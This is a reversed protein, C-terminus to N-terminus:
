NTDMTVAEREEQGRSQIGAKDTGLYLIPQSNGTDRVCIHFLEVVDLVPQDTHENTARPKLYCFVDSAQRGHNM